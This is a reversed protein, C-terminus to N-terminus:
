GFISALFIAAVLLGNLGNLVIILRCVLLKRMPSAFIELLLILSITAFEKGSSILATSFYNMLGRLGECGKAGLEKLLVKFSRREFILFESFRSCMRKLVLSSVLYLAWRGEMEERKSLCGASVMSVLVGFCSGGGCGGVVEFRLLVRCSLLALPLIVLLKMIPPVWFFCTCMRLESTLESYPRLIMCLWFATATLLFLTFV